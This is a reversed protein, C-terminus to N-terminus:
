ITARRRINALQNQSSTMEDTVVFAKLPEPAQVNSLDFSGSVMQPAPTTETTDQTGETGSPGQGAIIKRIQLASFGAALGAQIFGFSGGTAAMMPINAVGSKYAELVSQTGSITAQAVAAAKGIKTGEGAIQEVLKLGNMALAIKTEELDKDIKKQDEVAKEQVEGRLRAYKKEIELELEKRNELKSIAELEAKEEIELLMMAKKNEDEEIALLNENRIDQLRQNEEKQKEKNEEEVKDNIAKLDAAYQKDLLLILENQVKKSAKSKKIREKENELDIELRKKAREDENKISQLTIEDEIKSIEVQLNKEAAIREEYAKKNAENRKKAAEFAKTFFERTIKKQEVGFLRLSENQKNQLKLIEAEVAQQNKKATNLANQRDNITEASAEQKKEFNLSSEKQRTEEKALVLKEQLAAMSEADIAKQIEFNEKLADLREKSSKTQDDIIRKNADLQPQQKIQKKNIEGMTHNIDALTNDMIEVEDNNSKFVSVLTTGLAILATVGAVIAGIPNAAVILNFGKQVVGLLKTAGTWKGVLSIIGTITSKQKLLSQIGQNLSMAAQVQLIAKQTSESEIGFLKMAGQAASIASGAVGFADKLSVAEENTKKLDRNLQGINSKVEANVVVDAM